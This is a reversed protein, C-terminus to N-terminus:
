QRALLIAVQDLALHIATRDPGDEAPAVEDTGTMLERALILSHTTERRRRTMLASMLASLRVQMPSILETTHLAPVLRDRADMLAANVNILENDSARFRSGLGTGNGDGCSALAVLAILLAFTARLQRAPLVTTIRELIKMVHESTPYDSDSMYLVVGGAVPLRNNTTFTYGVFM